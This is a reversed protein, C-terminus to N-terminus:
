KRDKFRRVTVGRKLRRGGSSSGINLEPLGGRNRKTPSRSHSLEGRNAAASLRNLVAKSAAREAEIRANARARKINKAETRKDYIAIWEEVEKKKTTLQSINYDVRASFAVKEEEDSIDNLKKVQKGIVMELKTIDSLRERIRDNLLHLSMTNLTPRSPPRFGPSSM